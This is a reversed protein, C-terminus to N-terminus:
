LELLEKLGDRIEERGDKHGKAYAERHVQHLLDQLKNAKQGDVQEPGVDPGNPNQLHAYLFLDKPGTRAAEQIMDAIEHFPSM